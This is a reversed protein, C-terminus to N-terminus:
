GIQYKNEDDSYSDKRIRLASGQSKKSSNSSLLKQLRLMDNEPEPDFGPESIGHKTGSHDQRPNDKTPTFNSNKSEASEPKSATGQDSASKPQRKVLKDALKTTTVGSDTTGFPDFSSVAQKAESTKPSSGLLEFDSKLKNTLSSSLDAPADSSKSNGSPGLELGLLDLDSTIPPKAVAAQHDPFGLFFDDPNM